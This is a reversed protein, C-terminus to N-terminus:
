GELGYDALLASLGDETLTEERVSGDSSRWLVVAVIASAYGWAERLDQDLRIVDGDARLDPPPDDPSWDGQPYLTEDSFDNLVLEDAEPTWWMAGEYKGPSTIRGDVVTYPDPM